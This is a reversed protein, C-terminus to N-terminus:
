YAPPPATPPNAPVAQWGEKCELVHPYYSMTSDCYYWVGAPALGAPEAETYPELLLALSLLTALGVGILELLRLTKHM